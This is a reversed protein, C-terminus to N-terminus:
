ASVRMPLPQPHNAREEFPDDLPVPGIAGARLGTMLPSMGLFGSGSGRKRSSWSAAFSMVAARAACRGAPGARRRVAPGCRCARRHVPRGRLRSPRAHDAAVVPQPDRQALQAVVAVDRQVRLQDRQEVRTSRLWGRACGGRAGVHQDGVVAPGRSRCEMLRM